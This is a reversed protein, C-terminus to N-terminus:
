YNKLSSQIEAISKGRTEPLFVHNLIAGLICFMGFIWMCWHIGLIEAVFPFASNFGIFILGTTNLLIIFATARLDSRFLETTIVIPLPGLGLSYSMVYVLVTVIPVLQLQSVLPSNLHTLYFYIGLIGVSVGTGISSVLLMIKRDFREVIMSSVTFSITKAIGVSIAVTNSSISSGSGEFIPEMLSMVTPVGCLFQTCIVLTALILGIRAEKVTWMQVIKLQNDSNAKNVEEQIDNLDSCLEKATKNNRLRKLVNICEKDKGKSLLYVPSEPAFPFFLLFPVLPLGVMLTFIKFDFKPGLIYCYLEGLSLCVSMLSGYKARNHNECIETIYIPLVMYTNGTFTVYLCTWIIILTMNTSYATGILGLLTGLCLIQLSLKRGMRDAAMQLISCTILSVFTPAGLLMSIESTTIPKGIPNITTDNSDLKLIAPSTWTISSGIIVMPLTGIIATFYLFLTDPKQKSEQVCKLEDICQEYKEKSSLLDRVENSNEM